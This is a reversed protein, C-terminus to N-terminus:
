GNRKAVEILITEATRAPRFWAKARVNGSDVDGAQLLSEDCQVSFADEDEDATEGLPPLAGNFARANHLTTMYDYMGSEVQGFFLDDPIDYTVRDLLGQLSFAILCWLYGAHAFNWADDSSAARAGWVRPGSNDRDWIPNINSGLLTEAVGEDVLPVGNAQTELGYIGPLDFARGAPAKGPSIDAIARTWRGAIHGVPSITKVEQSATDVVKPRPYYFAANFADITARQTLASAVSAGEESCTLWFRYFAESQAVIEAKVTVDTDMDPAIIFGYGLTAARFAKLGTKVGANETGVIAAADPANDTAGGHTTPADFQTSAVAPLNTPAATASGQDELVVYMSGDNVRALSLSDMKLNDWVELTDGLADQLTFKFTNARRGDAIVVTFDDIWVGEGKAKVKLTSLPSGARDVLTMEATAATSGVIRVVWARRGGSSFFGKLAEYGPSYRTIDTYPTPGGFVAEFGALSTILTPVNSPGRLATLAIFLAPGPDAGLALPGAVARTVRAGVRNGM